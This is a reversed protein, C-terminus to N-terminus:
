VSGQKWYPFKNYVTAMSKQNTNLEIIESCNQEM